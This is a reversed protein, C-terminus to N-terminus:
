SKEELFQIPNVHTRHTWVEYHVHPGTTVGTSGSMAIMDGRKVRQGVKVLNQRNHGYVSSFGHGHEIVITNGNGGAWGSVSIIGDATAKVPTGTPVRIDIGSHFAPEGNRPHTRRGYASSVTGPVPWGRPTAFYVSRKEAIYKTIETVSTMAEAAQKKLLEMDISGTDNTTGAELVGKKSKVSFLRGFEEEAKRLSAITSRLELFQGSFYTLKQRMEYYEITKVGTSVVYATGVGWLAVIAVIGLLPIRLRLPRAKSHPVAMITIPTFVKRLLKRAKRM